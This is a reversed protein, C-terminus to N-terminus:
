GYTRRLLENMRHVESFVDDMNQGPKMYVKVSWTYGKSNKTLEVSSQGSSVEQIEMM